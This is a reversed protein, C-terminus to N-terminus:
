KNNLNTFRALMVFAQERLANNKPLFSGDDMGNVIGLAYVKNVYAKAWDSIKDNDTFELEKADASSDTACAIIKCIEERTITDNPRFMGDSGNILGASYAIAVYPAYWDDSDIDIFANNYEATELNLARVVLATFEARSISDKLRLGVTDGTVIGSKYLSTIEAEGWHGDLEKAVNSPVTDTAVPPTIVQSGDDKNDESEKNDDPTPKVPASGVGGGSGGSSGGSSGGTSTGGSQEPSTGTGEIIPEDAFYAYGGSKKCEVVEDNLTVINKNGSYITLNELDSANILSSSQIQMVDGSFNYAIAGVPSNAKFLYNDQTLTTDKLYTADMLFASVIKKSENLQVVMTSADTEFIGVTVPQKKEPENHHYYYYYDYEGTHENTITAVFANINEDDNDIDFAEADVSYDDNVDVPFIITSYKANGSVEQKAVMKKSDVFTDAAVVYRSHEISSTARDIDVPRVIVNATGNMNSRAEYTEPDLSMNAEPLMHWHQEYTIVEADDVPDAFDSIIWFKQDKLYLASRQLKAELNRTSSYEIFDYMMNSEFGEEIGDRNEYFHDQGNITVLNHRAAHGFYEKTHDTFDSKTAYGQDTLLYQGYANMCVSLVDNDKHSGAGKGTLMMSLANPDDWSSRMYTRLGVPYHSTPNKPLAGSVGGTAVYEFEPDDTFVDQYWKKVTDNYTGTIGAADGVQFTGYGPASCYILTQVAGHIEKLVGDEFPVEVGLEKATQVPGEVTGLLTVTYNLCLELSMGDDFTFVDLLYTYQEKTRQLWRDNTTFEPFRSIFNFVGEAAFGGWNNSKTFFYDECAWEAKRYLDKLIITFLEPTTHTSDIIYFIDKSQYTLAVSVDLAAQRELNLGVNNVYSMHQRLYTFAHNENGSYDYLQAVDTLTAGRYYVMATNKTNVTMLYDWVNKDHESWFQINHSYTKFNLTDESWESINPAYVVIEKTGTGSGNRGEYVLLASEIKDTTKLFSIDFKVYAYHTNEDFNSWTGSSQIKLTEEFGYNTNEYKGGRITGDACAPVTVSVGGNMTLELRAPSGSEKAKIEAQTPYKDVAFFGFGVYDKVGVLKTSSMTNIVNSKFTKWDNGFKVCDRVFGLNSSDVAYANKSLLYATTEVRSGLDSTIRKVRDGKVSSYYAQLEVKATDYDGAMVAEKVPALGPYLDYAFLPEIAWADNETDWAGFFEEDTRIYRGRDSPIQDEPITPIYYEPVDYTKWWNDPRSDDASVYGFPLLMVSFVCILIFSIIRKM